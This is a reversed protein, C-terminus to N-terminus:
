PQRKTQIRDRHFGTEPRYALAEQKKRLEEARQPDPTLGPIRPLPKTTKSFM